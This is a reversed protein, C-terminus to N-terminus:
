RVLKIIIQIIPIGKIPILPKPLVDTFPKMRLGQGGAMILVPLINSNFQWYSVPDNKVFLHVVKKNKNILPILSIEYKNFFHLLKKKSFNSITLYIPKKNYIKSISTKIKNEKILFNRIDGDSLTGHLTKDDNVLVLCKLGYQNMISMCKKLSVTKNVIIKKSKNIM